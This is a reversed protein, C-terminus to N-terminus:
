HARWNDPVPDFGGPHLPQCRGIRKIGLWAGRVVGFRVISEMAFQSCSPQFRCSPSLNPSVLKQYAVILGVALRSPVGAIGSKALGSNTLGSPALGSSALGSSNPKL